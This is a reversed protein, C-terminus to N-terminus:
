NGGGQTVQRELNNATTVQSALQAAADPGPAAIGDPNQREQPTPPTVGRVQNDALMKLGSDLKEQFQNHMEQLDALQMDISSEAPCDGQKSTVVEVKLSDGSPFQGRRQIIDGATLHCAQGNATVDLTSSVVFFKHSLAPPQENGTQSPMVNSGAAAREAALQNRVEEAIAEKTAPDITPAGGSYAQQQPPPVSSGDQQQNQYAMKLNEALLYDTLWLNPSAYVGAPAFYGSYFGFWPTFPTVFGYQVPVGWPTVAWGYFGPGYYYAPVYGYYRVNHYYYEHYVHVYSHGGYVYSRSYFGARGPVPREVFGRNPGYSVVRNGPNGTVVEREGHPGRILAMKGNLGPSEIKTIVGRANTTVTKGQVHYESRNGVVTNPRVGVPPKFKNVPDPTQIPPQPPRPPQVVTTPGPDKTKVTGTGGPPNKSGNTNVPAPPAKVPAPAAKVPAPAPATAAKKQDAKVECLCGMSVVALAAAWFSKNDYQILKVKTEGSPM